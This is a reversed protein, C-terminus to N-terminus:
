KTSKCDNENDHNSAFTSAPLKTGGPCAKCESSEIQDAYGGSPCIDCTLSALILASQKGVPCISCSAQEPQNQAKGKQCKKCSASKEIASTGATCIECDNDNDHLAATESDDLLARGKPCNLCAVFLTSASAQYSGSECIQCATDESIFKKGPSCFLCDNINDHM